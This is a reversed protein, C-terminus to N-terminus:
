QTKVGTPATVLRTALLLAERQMAPSQNLQRLRSIDAARRNPDSETLRRKNESAAPSTVNVFVDRREQAYADLVGEQARGHVVAALAHGLHVADLLGSTLGLGGCPNTIHAADGAFLVRGVRFRDIVRQHVRYPAIRDIRCNGDGPLLRALREPARKRVEEESLAADEGYTVRWGSRKDLIPIISWDVPDLVFNARAYGHQEFDYHLNVAVFREPWTFGKCELGLAERVGSRGGDAGIVWRARLTSRGAPTEVDVDAKDAEQRIAVVRHNWRVQAQGTSMLHRLAIDALLDQGLHLNYPYKTDRAIVSMDFRALVTGDAQRFQYDQKLMGQKRADDLLGLRDLAEVTPSHYVIARPSRIIDAEAELLTVPIGSRALILATVLGVPGAGAVVVGEIEEIM